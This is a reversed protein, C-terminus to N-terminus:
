PRAMALFDGLGNGARAHGHNRAKGPCSLAACRPATLATPRVTATSAAAHVHQVAPSRFAARSIRLCPCRIESYPGPMGGIPPVEGACGASRRCSGRSEQRPRSRDARHIRHLIIQLLPPLDEDQRGPWPAASRFAWGGPAPPRATEGARPLQQLIQVHEAQRPRPPRPIRAAASPPSFNDVVGQLVPYLRPGITSRM